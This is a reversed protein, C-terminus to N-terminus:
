SNRQAAFLALGAAFMMPRFRMLSYDAEQYHCAHYTKAGPWGNYELFFPENDRDADALFDVGVVLGARKCVLEGINRAQQLVDAPTEPQNPDIGHAQLIQAEHPSKPLQAYQGMLPIVEGGANLNSRIDTFPTFMNSRIGFRDQSDGVPGLISKNCYTTQQSYLLGSALVNGGGDVLVRYSTYRDSPTPIFERLEYNSRRTTHLESAFREVVAFQEDTEVFFKEVGGDRYHNAFVFPMEMSDGDLLASLPLTSPQRIGLDEIAQLEDQKPAGTNTSAFMYTNDPDPARDTTKSKVIRAGAKEAAHLVEWVNESEDHLVDRWASFSEAVVLPDVFLSVGSLSKPALEPSFEHTPSYTTATM